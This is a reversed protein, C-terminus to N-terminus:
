LWSQILCIGPAQCERQNGQTPFAWGSLGDGVAEWSCLPHLSCERLLSPSLAPVSVALLCEGVTACLWTGPRM